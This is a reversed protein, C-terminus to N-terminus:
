GTLIRKMIEQYIAETKRKGSKWDQKQQKTGKEMIVQAHLYTKLSLGVEEAIGKINPKDFYQIIPLHKILSILLKMDPDKLIAKSIKNVNEKKKDTVTYPFGKVHEQNSEIQKEIKEASRRTINAVHIFLRKLPEPLIHFKEGFYEKLKLDTRNFNRESFIIQHMDLIYNAFAEGGVRKIISDIEIRKANEGVVGIPTEKLGTLYELNDHITKYLGYKVPDQIYNGAM